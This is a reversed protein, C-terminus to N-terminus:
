LLNFLNTLIQLNNLPHNDSDLILKRNKIYIETVQPTEKVPKKIAQTETIGNKFIKHDILRKKTRNNTESILFHEFDYM